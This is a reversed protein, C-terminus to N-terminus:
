REDQMALYHRMAVGEEHWAPTTLWGTLVYKDNSYPPNGRHPHTYGAPWIALTGAKPSVRLQQYLFETEGGREVDNLYIIWACVRNVAYGDGHEHHWESFGGGIQTHQFKAVPSYVIHQGVSSIVSKYEEYHDMVIKNAYQNVHHEEHNIYVPDIETFLQRDNRGLKGNPFQNEGYCIRQVEPCDMKHLSKEIIEDCLDQPVANHSVGIFNQIEM